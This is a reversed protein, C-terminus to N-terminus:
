VCACVSAHDRIFVVKVCSSVKNREKLHGDACCADGQGARHAKRPASRCQAFWINNCRTVQLLPIM